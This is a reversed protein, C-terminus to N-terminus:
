LTFFKTGRANYWVVMGKKEGQWEYEFRIADCVFGFFKIQVLAKQLKNGQYMDLAITWIRIEETKGNWVKEHLEATWGLQGGGGPADPHIAVVKGTVIIQIM